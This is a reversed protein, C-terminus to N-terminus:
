SFNVFKLKRQMRLSLNTHFSTRLLIQLKIKKAIRNKEMIMIVAVTLVMYTKIVRRIEYLTCGFRHTFTQM